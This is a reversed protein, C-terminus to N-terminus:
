TPLRKNSMTSICPPSEHWKDESPPPEDGALFVKGTDDDYGASRFDIEYSRGIEDRLMEYARIRDKLESRAENKHAALTRLQDEIQRKLKAERADILEIRNKALEIRAQRLEIWRLDHGHLYMEGDEDFVPGHLQGFDEEADSKTAELRADSARTAENKEEAITPETM